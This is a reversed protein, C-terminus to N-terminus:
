LWRNRLFYCNLAAGQGTGTIALITDSVWTIVYRAQAGHPFCGTIIARRRLGTCIIAENPVGQHTLLETLHRCVAAIVAPWVTNEM